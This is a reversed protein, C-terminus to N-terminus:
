DGLNLPKGLMEKWRRKQAENLLAEIREEHDKRIKMMKPRVEEPKSGKQAEKVLPELKKQLSQMVEFYQLRQENTLDLEKMIEAQGLALLGERQLM